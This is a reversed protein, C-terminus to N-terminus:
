KGVIQFKLSLLLKELDQATELPISFSKENGVRRDNRDTFRLTVMV